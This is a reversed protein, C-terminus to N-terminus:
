THQIVKVACSEIKKIVKIVSARITHEQNSINELELHTNRMHRDLNDKRTFEKMCMPCNLVNKKNHTGLHRQLYRKEKFRQNCLYCAFQTSGVHIKKHSVLSDKLSFKRKCIDCSYAKIDSHKRILHKKLCQKNKFYKSCTICQFPKEIVHTKLHIELSRKRKFGKSCISCFHSRVSHVIRHEIMKSKTFFCKECDTCKYPKKGSHTLLHYDLHSQVKFTKNCMQCILIKKITNGDCTIHYFCNKKSKFETKCITCSYKINGENEILIIHGPIKFSKKKTEPIKQTSSSNKDMLSNIYDSNSSYSQDININPIVKEQNKSCSM